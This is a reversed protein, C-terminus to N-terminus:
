SFLGLFWGLLVKTLSLWFWLEKAKRVQLGLYFNYIKEYAVFKIQPGLGLDAELGDLFWCLTLFSGQKPSGFNPQTGLHQFQM